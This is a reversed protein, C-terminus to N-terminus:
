YGRPVNLFHATITWLIHIGGFIVVSAASLRMFDKLKYLIM